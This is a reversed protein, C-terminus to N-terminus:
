SRQGRAGNTSHAALQGCIVSGSCPQGGIERSRGILAPTLYTACLSSILGKEFFDSRVSAALIRPVVTPRETETWKVEVRNGEVAPTETDWRYGRYPLFRLTERSGPM